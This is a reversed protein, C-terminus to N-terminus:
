TRVVYTGGGPARQDVAKTVIKAKSIFKSLTKSAVGSNCKAREDQTRYACKELVPRSCRSPSTARSSRSIAGNTGEHIEREFFPCELTGPRDAFTATAM